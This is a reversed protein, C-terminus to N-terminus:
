KTGSFNNVLYTNDPFPTINHIEISNEKLIPKIEDWNEKNCKMAIPRM